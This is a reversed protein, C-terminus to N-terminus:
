SASSGGDLFTLLLIERKNSAGDDHVAVVCAQFTGDAAVLRCFSATGGGVGFYYAKAAVWARGTRPKLCQLGAVSMRPTRGCFLLAHSRKSHHMAACGVQKICALLQRQSDLSYITEASLVIDYAGCLGERDLLEPLAAWSGAALVPPFNSHM